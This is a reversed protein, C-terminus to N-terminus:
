SPEPFHGHTEAAQSPDADRIQRLQSAIAQQEATQGPSPHDIWWGPGWRLVKGYLTLILGNEFPQSSLRLSRVLPDADLDATYGHGPEYRRVYEAPSDVFLWGAAPDDAAYCLVTGRDVILSPAGLLTQAESRRVDRDEFQARLGGTLEDWRPQGITHDVTLYGLRHFIEAYVGAVEAQCRPRGFLAEFPGAVGLKGYSYVRQRALASDADRDDLFCLDDLLGSALLQMEHGTTAYMGTRAMFAQILALWRARLEEVSRV